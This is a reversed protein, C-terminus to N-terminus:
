PWDEFGLLSLTERWNIRLCFGLRLLLLACLAWVLSLGPLGARSVLFVQVVPSWLIGVIYTWEVLEPLCLLGIYYRFVFVSFCGFHPSLSICALHFFLMQFPILYIFYLCYKKLIYFVLVKFVVFGIFFNFFFYVLLFCANDHHFPCSM